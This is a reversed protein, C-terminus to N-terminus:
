RAQAYIAAGSRAVLSPASSFRRAEGARLAKRSFGTPCTSKTRSTALRHLRPQGRLLFSLLSLLSYCSSDACLWGGHYAWGGPLASCRSGVQEDDIPTPSKSKTGVSRQGDPGRSARTM